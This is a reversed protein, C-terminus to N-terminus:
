SPKFRKSKYDSPNNGLPKFGFRKQPSKDVTRGIKSSLAKAFNSSLLGESVLSGTLKSDDFNAPDRLKSRIQHITPDDSFKNNYDDTKLIKSILSDKDDIDTDIQVNRIAYNSLTLHPMILAVNPEPATTPILTYPLVTPYKLPPVPKSPGEKATGATTAFKAFPTSGAVNAFASTISETAKGMLTGYFTTGGLGAGLPPGSYAKGFHDVATGGITGKAGMVSITMGSINTTQSSAAWEKSATTILSGGSTFEVNGEVFNKQDGKVLVNNGGLITDSSLGVVRNGRNGKITTQQNKGVTKNHSYSINETLNGFTKINTNGGVTLNYDGTVHVNVDGKYVLNAEGEVIVTNDGGTVEVKKNVSSILVSGDARLEIGSGTRHKILIREGGPTDDIEWVHGSSTEQVQNHPYQSPKQDELETSINYDGGGSFLTNTTEGKASKNISNGFFYNQKPFEGTADDFGTQPVGQTLERGEGIQVSRKQLNDEKTTM